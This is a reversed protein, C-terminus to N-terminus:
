GPRQVDNFLQVGRGLIDLKAVLARHQWTSDIERARQKKDFHQNAKDKFITGIASM